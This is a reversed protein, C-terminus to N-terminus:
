TGGSKKEFGNVYTIRTEVPDFGCLIRQVM